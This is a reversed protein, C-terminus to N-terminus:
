KIARQRYIWIFYTIKIINVTKKTTKVLKNRKMNTKLFRHSNFPFHNFRNKYLM